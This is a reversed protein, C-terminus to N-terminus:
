SVLSEEEQVVFSKTFKEIEDRLKQETEEDLDGTERIKALVSEDTRMYERLEDQFRQIQPVPIDDLYGNVGEFLAVVQEEM